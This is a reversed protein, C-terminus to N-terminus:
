GLQSHDDHTAHRQRYVLARSRNCSSASRHSTRRHSYSPRGKNFQIDARVHLVDRFPTTLPAQTAKSSRRTSYWLGQHQPEDSCRSQGDAFTTGRYLNRLDVGKGSHRRSQRIRWGTVWIGLRSCQGSKLVPPSFHCAWLAVAALNYRSEGLVFKMLYNPFPYFCFFSTSSFFISLPPSFLAGKLNFDQTRWEQYSSM